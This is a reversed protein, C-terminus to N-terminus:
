TPSPKLWPSGQRHEPQSLRQELQNAPMPEGLLFGQLEDCGIARVVELQGANEIGEAVVKLKLASAMWVIARCLSEASSGRALPAVLGHDIKLGDVDLQQLQSLSSFGAGFDDIVLSVGLSRLESIQNKVAVSQEVVASETIEIELLEGAVQHSQMQDRLFGAVDSARLQEPSVNIAIRPVPIGARQWDAMQAIARAMVWEGIPVILGANEALGIFSGPMVLGREPRQWRLLAEVGSLAGSQARFKPQYHIVLEDRELAKRLSQENGLREALQLSLEKTYWFRQSRGLAKAQYMAIDAHKLLEDPREGDQPFVSIGVSASVKSVPGEMSVFHASIGHIIKDALPDIGNLEDLNDIIVLFEDGGLRVVHDSARVVARIQAAVQKLLDDGADHGLTDNITKFHDLDIFMIALQKHARGARRMAKPLYAHLWMRNPLGTLIDRHALELLEEQHAKAESIDRLTLAIASGVKVARRYLWKAPLSAAAGVRREDEAMQYALAKKILELLDEFVVRKLRTSAAQGILSHHGSGLLIGGRENVDEFRFDILTGAADLLPWLMYFGEDAADTATRYVRRIEEESRRRAALKAALVAGALCFCLLICTSVLAVAYYIRSTKELGVLADSETIAAVAVLPLIPHRRWGVYRARGDTFLHGAERRVGQPTDFHPPAKYFIHPAEESAQKSALVPGDVMWLNVFDRPGIIANDQFAHLFDPTLGFALAGAFSGDARSLRHSMRMVMTGSIPSFEVPTVRWGDCCHSRHHELFSPRFLRYSTPAFSANTVNGDADYLAVYLPKGRPYIGVLINAFDIDRPQLRWNAILAKGVQDLRDTLDEIQQGYSNVRAKVRLKILATEADRHETVMHTVGLWIAATLASFLIALFVLWPRVDKLRLM